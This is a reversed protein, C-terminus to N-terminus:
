ACTSAPRGTETLEPNRGAQSFLAGGPSDELLSIPASITQPTLPLHESARAIGGQKAVVWSDHQHKYNVV